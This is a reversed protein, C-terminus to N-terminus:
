GQDFFNIEFPCNDWKNNKQVAALHNVFNRAGDFAIPSILVGAKNIFSFQNNQLVRAFGNVYPEQEDWKTPQSAPAKITAVEQAFTTILSLLLVFFLVYKKM